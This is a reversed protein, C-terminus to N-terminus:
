YQATKKRHETEKNCISFTNYSMSVGLYKIHKINLLEINRIKIISKFYTADSSENLNCIM